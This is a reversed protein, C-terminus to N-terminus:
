PSNSFSFGAKTLCSCTRDLSENKVLVYDTDFTSISFISIKSDALPKAISSLIGTLSFDLPGKVQLARWSSESKIGTPVLREECVISLEESSKSISFFISQKIWSPIETGPDLRCITFIQPLINLTM